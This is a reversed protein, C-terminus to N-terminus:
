GTNIKVFLKIFTLITTTLVKRGGNFTHTETNSGTDAEDDSLTVKAEVVVDFDINHFAVCVKEESGLLWTDPATVIIGRSIYLHHEILFIGITM